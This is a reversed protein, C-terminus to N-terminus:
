ALRLDLSWSRLQGVDRFLHDGVNLRWRGGAEIGSQVMRALDPTSAPTYTQKVDRASDRADVQKLEAVFGEASSLVIRLDGRYRHTIDVAVSIGSLRGAIPCEIESVVGAPRRDAIALEPRQEGRFTRVVEAPQDPNLARARAVARAANVKGAGFFLSRGAAFAGSLGQVNPDDALDLTPDLDQDATSMLIQRVEAAGLHPNASLMLGAVGAVIPAAGSTGGFERTYLNERLDPTAPNDFRAIPQFPRSSSPLEARSVVEIM